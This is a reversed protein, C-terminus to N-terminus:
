LPKCEIFLRHRRVVNSHEKEQHTKAIKFHEQKAIKQIMALSFGREPIRDHFRKYLGNKAQKQFITIRWAFQYANTRELAFHVYDGDLQWLYGNAQNKLYWPFFEPVLLDFALIGSSSIQQRAVRFFQRLDRESTLHNITDNAAFIFDFLQPLRKLPKRLDGRILTAHSATRAAIRLMESSNDLGTLVVGSIKQLRQLNLGGGCGLELIHCPSEARRALDIYYDGVSRTIAARAIANWYKALNKYM